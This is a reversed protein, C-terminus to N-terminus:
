FYIVQKALNSWFVHIKTKQKNAAQRGADNIIHMDLNGFQMRLPMEARTQVRLAEELEMWHDHQHGINIRTKNQNRWFKM